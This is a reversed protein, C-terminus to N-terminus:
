LPPQVGARISEFVPVASDAEAKSTVCALTTRGKPTELLSMHMLVDQDPHAAKPTAYIAVGEIGNVTIGDLRQVDFVMELTAKAVNRWEPKRSMANIQKQSLAANSPAKAFALGCLTGDRNKAVPKGSESRISFVVDQRPRPPSKTVTYGPPLQVSLGTAEDRLQNQAMAPLSFAAVLAIHLLRQASIPTNSVNQM